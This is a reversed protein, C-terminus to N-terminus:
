FDDHGLVGLMLVLINSCKPIDECQRTIGTVYLRVLDFEISFQDWIFWWM